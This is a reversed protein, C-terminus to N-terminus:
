AQWGCVHHPFGTGLLNVSASNIGLLEGCRGATPRMGYGESACAGKGWLPITLRGGLVGAIEMSWNQLTYSHALNM